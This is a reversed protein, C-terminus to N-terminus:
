CHFFFFDYKAVQQSFSNVIRHYGQIFFFPLSIHLFKHLSYIRAFGWCSLFNSAQGGRFSFPLLYRVLCILLLLLSLLLYVFFCCFFNKRAISHWRFRNTPKLLIYVTFVTCKSRHNLRSWKRSNEVSANCRRYSYLLQEEEEREQSMNWIYRHKLYRSPVNTGVAQRYPLSWM